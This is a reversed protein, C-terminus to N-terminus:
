EFDLVREIKWIILFALAQSSVRYIHLTCVTICIYLLMIKPQFYVCLAGSYMSLCLILCIMSISFFPQRQQCRTRLRFMLVRTWAIFIGHTKMEISFTHKWGGFCREHYSHIVFALLLLTGFGGHCFRFTNRYYKGNIWINVEVNNSSTEYKKTENMPHFKTLPKKMMLDLWMWKFENCVNCICKCNFTCECFLYINFAFVFCM